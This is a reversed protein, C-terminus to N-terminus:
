KKRCTIVGSDSTCVVGYQSQANKCSVSSIGIDRCIKQVDSASKKNKEANSNVIAVIIAIVILIIFFWVWGGGSGSSTNRSYARNRYDAAVFKNRLDRLQAKSEEPVDDMELIRDIESVASGFHGAQAYRTARGLREQFDKLSDISKFDEQDKEIRKEVVSDSSCINYATDLVEEALDRDESYTFIDSNNMIDIAIRRLAMANDDRVINVKSSNWIRDGLAQIDDTIEDSDEKFKTIKETSEDSVWMSSGEGGYEINYNRMKKTIADLKNLLPDLTEREFSDSHASFRKGFAAYIAPDEETKSMSEYFSSLTKEANKKFDDFLEDSTDPNNLKYVKKFNAWQKDSNLITQWSKLSAELYKKQATETFILSEFVAKNRIATYNNPSSIIKGQLVELADIYEGERFLKLAKEDVSDKIILWFYTEIIKKSPTTLKEAAKKVKAETRTAKSSPLDTDYEPTEDIKLLNEIERSRKLIEKESAGSDLGLVNYANETFFAKSM